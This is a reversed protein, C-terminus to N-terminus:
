FVYIEFCTRFSSTSIPTQTKGQVPKLTWLRFWLNRFLNPIVLNRIASNKQAIYLRRRLPNLKAEANTTKM